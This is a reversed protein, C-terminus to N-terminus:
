GARQDTLPHTMCALTVLCREPAAAAIVRAMPAPMGDADLAVDFLGLRNRTCSIRPNADSLGTGAAKWFAELATWYFFFQRAPDPGLDTDRRRADPLAMFRALLDFDALGADLCEVDIGIPGGSSVACTVAERSRSHSFFLAQEGPRGALFPKGRADHSIVIDQPEVALACALAARRLAHVLVYARRDAERRLRRSRLQEAEDLLLAAQNWQLGDMDAPCATWIRVGYPQEIAAASAAELVCQAAGRRSPLM